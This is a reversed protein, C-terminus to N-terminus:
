LSTKEQRKVRKQGHRRKPNKTFSSVPLVIENGDFYAGVSFGSGAPDDYVSSGKLVLLRGASNWLYPM